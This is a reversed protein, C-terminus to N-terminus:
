ESVFEMAASNMCYRKGTPPPGDDFVHGLHGECRSCLVETRTSFFGKDVRYSVNESCIPQSFSPWGTGSNYKDKSSYLPLACGACVYIGAEHNDNFANNFAPETGAKRLVKFQEPTLREKWQKETLLMKKGDFRYGPLCEGQNAPPVPQCFGKAPMHLLFLISCLSFLLKNM